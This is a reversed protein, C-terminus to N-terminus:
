SRLQMESTIFRPSSKQTTSDISRAEQPNRKDGKLRFFGRELSKLFAGKQM